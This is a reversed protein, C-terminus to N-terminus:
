LILDEPIIHDSPLVWVAIPIFLTSIKEAMFKEWKGKSEIEHPM